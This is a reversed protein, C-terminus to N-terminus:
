SRLMWEFDTGYLAREVESFNTLVDSLEFPNTKEFRVTARHYGMGAFECVQRYAIEPHGVIDDEYTLCLLRRDGLIEKLTAMSDQERQLHAVLSRRETDRGRSLLLRDVDLEIRVLPSSEGPARHWQSTKRAVMMSVIRRLHNKRELIIFHGFGLDELRQVYESISMDMYEVQPPQTEFGFCRSGAIQMRLKLITLRDRTLRPWRAAISELRGPSFLEGEWVVRPHQKLLDGLLRSGSRGLHFSAINCPRWRSLVPGTMLRGLSGILNQVRMKTEGIHM